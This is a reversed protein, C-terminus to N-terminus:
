NQISSETDEYPETYTYTITYKSDTVTTPSFATNQLFLGCEPCKSHYKSIKEGCASCCDPNQIWAMQEPTLADDLVETHKIFRLMREFSVSFFLYHIIYHVFSFIGSFWLLFVFSFRSFLAAFIIVILTINLFNKHDVVFTIHLEHATQTTSIRVSYPIYFLQSVTFEIFDKTITANAYKKHIHSSLISMANAHIDSIQLMYSYSFPTIRFM